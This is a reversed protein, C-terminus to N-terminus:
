RGMLKRWRNCASEFVADFSSKICDYDPPYFMMVTKKHAPYLGKVPGEKSKREIRAILGLSSEDLKDLLSIHYAIKNIHVKIYHGKHRFRIYEGEEGIVEWWHNSQYM